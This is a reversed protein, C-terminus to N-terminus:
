RRWFDLLTQPPSPTPRRPPTPAPRRPPTPQVDERRRLLEGSRRILFPSKLKAEEEKGDDMDMSEAGHGLLLSSSVAVPYSCGDPQACFDSWNGWTRDDERELAFSKKQSKADADFGQQDQSNRNVEWTRVTGDDSTTAVKTFDHKHWAVGNVESTHGKLVVCPFRSRTTTSVNATSVNATSVNATSANWIFAAGDASGGIVFDSEPSFAAKVYFSTALHGGCQVIPEAKPAQVDVIKIADNLVNVLLKSRTYDFALSSIGHHTGVRSSCSITRVPRSSFATSKFHHSTTLRRVDWFKIVSDVAGATVIEHGSAGFEICTVSRPSNSVAAPKKRKRASPPSAFPTSTSSIAPAAHVNDLTAVPAGNTRTDWILVNGDRAGSAFLHAHDPVQRVCKVSMQHGKLTFVSRQSEVDWGSVFLDGSATVLQKDDHTWIVDFVANRHALWRRRVPQTIAIRPHSENHTESTDIISIVGEEDVVALLHAASQLSNGFMVQFGPVSQGSESQLAFTADDSSQFSRLMLARIETHHQALSGGGVPATGLAGSSVAGDSSLSYSASSLSASTGASRVRRRHLAGAGGLQLRQVHRALNEAGGNAAEM